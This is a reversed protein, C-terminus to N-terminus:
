ATGAMRGDNLAADAADPHVGEVPTVDTVKEIV